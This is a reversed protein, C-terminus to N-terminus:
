ILLTQRLTMKSTHLFDTTLPFYFTRQFILPLTFTYNMKENLDQIIKVFYDRCVTLALLELKGGIEEECLAKM